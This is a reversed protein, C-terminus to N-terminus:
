LINKFVQKFDIKINKIDKAKIISRKEKNNFDYGFLDLELKCKKEVMKRTNDNYLKQFNVEKNSNNIRKNSLEKIEIGIEKSLEILNNNLNEQFLIYDVDCEGKENFMQFYLFKKFPESWYLENQKECYLEIFSDFSKINNIENVFGWGVNDKKGGEFFFASALLDFPNRVIAFTKIEKLENKSISKPQFFQPDGNKDFSYKEFCKAFYTHEWNENERGLNTELNNQKLFSRVFSGGTKPIHIFFLKSM